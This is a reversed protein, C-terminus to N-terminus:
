RMPNCLASAPDSAMTDGLLQHQLLCLAIFLGRPADSPSSGAWLRKWSAGQGEQWPLIRSAAWVALQQRQLRSWAWPQPQFCRWAQAAEWSSRWRAWPRTWTMTFWTSTQLSRRQAPSLPATVPGPPVPTVLQEGASAVSLGNLNMLRRPKLLVLQLGQAATLAVDACCRGDARWSEAAALQRALRDLVAMGVSHRTGWLGYNGLGAVMVRPGARSVLPRARGALMGGRAGM